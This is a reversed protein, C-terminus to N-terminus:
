LDQGGHTTKQYHCSSRTENHCAISVHRQALDFGLSVSGTTQFPAPSLPGLGRTGFSRGCTQPVACGCPIAYGSESSRVAPLNGDARLSLKHTSQAGIVFRM